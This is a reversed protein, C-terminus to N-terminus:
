TNETLEEFPDPNTLQRYWSPRYDKDYNQLHVQMPPLVILLQVFTPLSKVEIM